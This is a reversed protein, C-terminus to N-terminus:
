VIRNRILTAVTQGSVMADVIRKEKNVFDGGVFVHPYSTLYDKEGRFLKISSGDFVEGSSIQGTAFVLDDLEFAVNEGELAEVRNRGTEADRIVCTRQCDLMRKTEKRRFAIPGFLEHIAVGEHVAEMIERRSAPSEALTRRYIIHVEKGARILRRSLDVSVNGLGIIGVVHGLKKALDDVTFRNKNLLDIAYHILD